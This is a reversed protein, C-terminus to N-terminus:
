NGAFWGISPTIALVGAVLTRWPRHFFLLLLLCAVSFSNNFAAQDCDRGNFAVSQGARLVEYQLM